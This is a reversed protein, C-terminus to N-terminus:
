GGWPTGGFNAVFNFWFLFLFVWLLLPGVMILLMGTQVARLGVPDPPPPPWAADVSARAAEPTLPAGDLAFRGDRFTLARGGVTLTWEGSGAPAPTSRPMGCAPCADVLVEGARAIEELYGFAARELPPQPRRLGGALEVSVGDPEHRETRHCCRCRVKM